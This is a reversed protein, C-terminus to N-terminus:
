FAIGGIAVSALSETQLHFGSSDASFDIGSANWFRAGRTVYRDYPANVFVRFRVGKGDPDLEASAVQGVRVRRFYIPSGVDISGLDEARLVFERGPVDATVVPPT